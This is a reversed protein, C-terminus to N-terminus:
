VLNNSSSNTVMGLKDLSSSNIAWGRLNNSNCCCIPLRLPHSSRSVPMPSHKRFSLERAM